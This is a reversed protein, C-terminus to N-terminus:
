IALTVTPPVHMLRVVQSIYFPALIKGKQNVAYHITVRIFCNILQKQMPIDCSQSWFVRGTPGGPDGRACSNASASRYSNPIAKKTHAFHKDHDTLPGGSLAQQAEPRSARHLWYGQVAQQLFVQTDTVPTICLRYPQMNINGTNVSIDLNM